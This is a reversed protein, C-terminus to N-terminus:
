GNVHPVGDADFVYNIGVHPVGDADYVYVIGDHQTGTADTVHVISQVTWHAYLTQAAPISVVTTAQIQTGGETATFWGDFRYGARIPTPLTGYTQGYTAQLSALSVVGGNANFTVTYTNATWVAYLTTNSSVTISSGPEYAAAGNASTAWGGFTYGPKAPASSTLTFSASGIGIATQAPFTGTGGQLDYSLTYETETTEIVLEASDFLIWGSGVTFAVDAVFMFSTIGAQMLSTADISVVDGPNNIILYKTVGAANASTYGTNGYSEHLKFNAGSPSSGHDSVNLNLTASQIKSAETVTSPAIIKTRLYLSDQRGVGIINHNVYYTGNFSTSTAGDITCTFTRTM